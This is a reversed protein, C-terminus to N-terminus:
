LLSASDADLYIAASPHTRVRSSPCAETIPGTLANKVAEAKRLDPVTCILHRASVLEPCTLTLAEAPMADLSPFHGEGVQQRRCREDMAVRKVALPDHFDAVGPDNFAIHGNEGFGIFCIDIPASHLLAAYRECEATTDPADGALYNLKGPHVIDALHTKLWRRFSAPHQDSMGVYEDMHFVEVGSWALNPAQVLARIMDEQSNGTGVIIRASGREALASRMIASAALAAAESTQPKTQYIYVRAQDVIFERLPSKMM